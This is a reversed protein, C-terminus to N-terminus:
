VPPGVCKIPHAETNYVYGNKGEHGVDWEQSPKQIMYSYKLVEAFLFSEQHKMSNGRGYANIDTIASFGNKARCTTNLAVFADWAWDRYIENGTARYAHYYSEIVEPRLM